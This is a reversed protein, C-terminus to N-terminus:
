CLPLPRFDLGDKKKKKKKEKLQQERGWGVVGLLTDGVWVHV